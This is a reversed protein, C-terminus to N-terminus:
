IGGLMTRLSAPPQPCLIDSLHYLATRAHVPGQNWVWCWLFKIYQHRGAIGASLPLPLLLLLEIDDRSVSPTLLWGPSQSDRSLFAAAVVIVVFFGSSTPFGHLMSSSIHIQLPHGRLEAKRKGSVPCSGFLPSGTTHYIIDTTVKVPDLIM